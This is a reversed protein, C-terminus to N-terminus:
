LTHYWVIVRFLDNGSLHTGLKGAKACTEGLSNDTEKLKRDMQSLKRLNEPKQSFTSLNQGMICTLARKEWGRPDHLRTRVVSTVIHSKQTFGHWLLHTRPYCGYMGGAWDIIQMYEVRPSVQAMSLTLGETWLSVVTFFIFKLTRKLLWLKFQGHINSQQLHEGSDNM